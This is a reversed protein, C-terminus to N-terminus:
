EKLGHEKVAKLPLRRPWVVRAERLLCSHILVALPAFRAKLAGPSHMRLSAEDSDRYSWRLPAEAPDASRLFTIATKDGFAAATNCLLEYTSRVPVAQIM